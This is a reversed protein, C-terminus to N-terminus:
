SAAEYVVGFRIQDTSAIAATFSGGTQGIAATVANAYFVVTTTTALLPIGTYFTSASADFLFFGGGAVAGANAATVPLTITVANNATGASTATLYVSAVVLRGVKCYKAWNNTYTVTASQTFTPTYATWVGLGTSMIGTGIAANLDAATLIDNATWPYAM